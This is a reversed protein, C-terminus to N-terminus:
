YASQRNCLIFDYLQYLELQTVCEIDQLGRGGGGWVAGGCM